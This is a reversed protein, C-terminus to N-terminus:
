RRKGRNEKRRKRANEKWVRRKKASPKEYSKRQKFERLIGIKDVKRKFKKLVRAFTEPSQNDRPTVYIKIGM